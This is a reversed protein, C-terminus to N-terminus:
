STQGIKEGPFNKPEESNSRHLALASSGSNKWTQDIPHASYVNIARIEVDVTITFVFVPAKSIPTVVFVLSSLFCAGKPM